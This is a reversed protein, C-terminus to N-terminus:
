KKRELYLVVKSLKKLYNRQAVNLNPFLNDIHADIKQYSIDALFSLREDQKTKFEDLKNTIAM